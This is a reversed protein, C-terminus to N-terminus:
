IENKVEKLYYNYAKEFLNFEKITEYAIDYLKDEDKCFIIKGEELIRRRIFLPLQQFIQIDFKNPLISYYKIRKNTMEKNTYKKSLVLCVDIDRAYLRNNIYSGFLLVAIIQKDKKLTNLKKKIQNINM